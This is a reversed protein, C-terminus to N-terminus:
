HFLTQRVYFRRKSYNIMASEFMTQNFDPVGKGALFVMRKMLRETLGSKWSDIDSCAAWLEHVTEIFTWESDQTMNTDTM